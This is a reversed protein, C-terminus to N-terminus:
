GYFQCIMGLKIVKVAVCKSINVTRGEDSPWNVPLIIVKCKRPKIVNAGVNSM